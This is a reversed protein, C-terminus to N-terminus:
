ESAGGEKPQWAACADEPSATVCGFEPKHLWDCHDCDWEGAIMARIIPFLDSTLHCLTEMGKETFLGCWALCLSKDQRLAPCGGADECKM